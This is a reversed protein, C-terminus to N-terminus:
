LRVILHLDTISVQLTEPKWALRPGESRAGPPRGHAQTGM